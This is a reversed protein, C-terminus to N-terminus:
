KLKRYQQYVSPTLTTLTVIWGPLRLEQIAQNLLDAVDRNNIWISRQLM